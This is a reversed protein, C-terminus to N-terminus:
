ANRLADVEIKNMKMLAQIVRDGKDTRSMLAGMEKPIVQWSVGFKDKLWGCRGETGGAATLQNWYHDIMEQDDCELVLSVAENFQIGPMQTSDMAMFFSGGLKFQAHKILGEKDSDNIGYKYLGIVSSHSFLSTYYDVAEAAKGAQAGTFMLTPIFKQGVDTLPGLSLQWNVGFRDQVWGYKKSWDYTNLAMLVKGGNALAEWACDAETETECQVYFSVTSNFSFRTGGNLCMFKQGSAEFLVVMQTNLTVQAQLFISCYLEAAEAAMGNFWLCPYIPSTM